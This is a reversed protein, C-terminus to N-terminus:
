ITELFDSPEVEADGEVSARPHRWKEIALIEIHYM